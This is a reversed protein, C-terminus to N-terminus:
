DQADLWEGLEHEHEEKSIGRRQIYREYDANAKQAEYDFENLSEPDGRRWDWLPPAAHYTDKLNQTTM